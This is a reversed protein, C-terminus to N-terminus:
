WFHVIPELGRATLSWAARSRRWAFARRPRATLQANEVTALRRGSGDFVSLQVQGASPLSFELSAQTSTVEGVRLSYNAVVEAGLGNGSGCPGLSNYRQGDDVCTPHGQDHPACAFVTGTCTEGRGDDATFHIAALGGCPAGRPAVTEPLVAGLTNSRVGERSLRISPQAARQAAANCFCARDM